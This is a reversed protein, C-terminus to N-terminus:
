AFDAVEWGFVYIFLGLLERLAKCYMAKTNIALFYKIHHHSTLHFKIYKSHIFIFHLNKCYSLLSYSFASLLLTSTLHNM